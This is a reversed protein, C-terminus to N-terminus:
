RQQQTERSRAGDTEATEDATQESKSDSEVPEGVVFRVADSGVKWLQRVVIKLDFWLSQQRIYILDYRLKEEAEASTTENIQALGTLGPKIFWRKRWAATEQEIEVGEDTWVARPGVVSMEGVLIAWLQPLEDLHTKRVVRGVRTVRHEEDEETPSDEEGHTMSRFKDVTFTNWFAATREQGYLIPGSDDLKIALGICLIVPSLILLAAGASESKM